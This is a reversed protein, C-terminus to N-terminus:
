GGWSVRWITKGTDDTVLLSGDPTEAIGAPRGWVEARDTGGIRFGDLFVEYGGGDPKGDKLRIRVVQYGVPKGSNWSGRLTVFANGRYEAPFRTGQYFVLGIPASHSRFLLDPVVAQRVLDPRREAYGPQPNQGIYSYPWGYFGNPRVETFYDPVLDDGLGDRENILAYLRGTGPLLAIGVANRLGSAYTAQGRATGNPGDLRFSQITARPAQEEGINGASGISVFLRSGDPSIAVNRTWHGGGAGIAGEDTVPELPGRAKTDGPRYPVRWVRDTDGIYLYGGHIALGHPRDLDGVFPQVLDARGDGDTDRLLTIQDESPEALLVDGNAAAILHRPHSLGARFLSVRFGAPAKPAADPPRSVVRPSNSVSRTAYPAPLDAPTLRIREGVEASVTSASALLLLGGVILASASTATTMTGRTFPRLLLRIIGADALDDIGVALDPTRRGPARSRFLRDWISLVTAYNADRDARLAADHHVWHISPTVLVRALMAEIWPALRLNSHHFTTAVLLVTECVLVSSLPMAVAVIVAARMLASLAVEGAHFRVATTVDLFRDLHHVAHFRWLWPAAHNARHWWYILLDLLLLDFVLGTWGSLWSPWLGHDIGAAAVSIPVVFAVSLGANVVWLGLNRAVRAEGPPRVAAPLLREGAALAVFILGVVVAKYSLLDVVEM